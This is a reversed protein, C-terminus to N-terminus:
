GDRELLACLEQSPLPRSFIYGQGLRCGLAQLREVQEANEVGEAIVELRLAHALSIVSRVITTDESEEGLGDVFSRDIKLADVPFRHLYSLSSYGTGFDDIALRVGLDKLERLTAVNSEADEMVVSETIELMLGKPDLGTEELVRAVEGVLGPHGFQRASVNVSVELPGGIRHRGQWERAERCAQELIWRGLPLILGTEEALPIFEAPPVMGRMRHEWRVLAEVGVIRGTALEVKPQYHLRLEERELARHLDAELELLELARSGMSPEFVKYLGKGTRKASYMAIDAARLLEDPDRQGARSVAVGISATLVVERDRLELAPRLVEGVREAVLTADSTDEVDEILVAFEDGGLRAVTDEPRLGERLRRGVATLLEDGVEHGLSDNVPKFRDLDVFLVAVSCGHRTGRVMAHELRDLFLARNPLGTLPDHFAQHRLQEELSKRDTIDREIGLVMERGGVRILSSVAEVFFLTGDKRRHKLDLKDPGIRLREVHEAFTQSEVIESHLASVSKGILEEQTYGNMRCATDNCEIIRWPVDPDHPDMLLVGDPSHEFLVRFREESERLAEEARIRELAGGCYDAFSQLTILDSETYAQFAYSQISLVGAVGSASRIPVFMLSASARQTDGFPRMEERPIPRGDLLLLRPGEVMTRLSLSGPSVPSNSSASETRKGNVVDFDLVPYLLGDDPSRLLLIFGDWGFMKDTVEAMIRAASTVTTTSSLRQGLGSIASTREEARKRETIDRANIVIGQVNQDHLLNNRVSEMYRWSGDRHRFRYELPSSGGHHDMHNGHFAVIRAVDDPHALAGIRTGVLDEPRYGLVLELSPSAYRLIGEADVVAIIDSANQVLSRFGEERRRLADQAQVRKILLAVKDAVSALVETASEALPHQAFIAMVGVLRNGLMLPYGAFAVMGERRAWEKDSVRPDDLVANTLHPLREAAILGIKYQGVPVRSHTGDIHTYMGASAVLKLVSEKEDLTWIRAFAADLHRVLAQACRQLVERLDGGETIVTGIDAGLAAQRAQEILQREARKRETIDRYQWLHGRYTDDDFIPIYDREFTRGDALLLEEDTVTRREGLLREIRGVFAEPEAFLHKVQQVGESCDTGILAQPPAPIGFMMCLEWNVHVIHREEDEVLIGVRLHEIFAALQSASAWRAEEAHAPAPLNANM